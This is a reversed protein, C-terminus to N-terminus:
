GHPRRQVHQDEKRDQTEPFRAAVPAPLAPLLGEPGNGFAGDGRELVGTSTRVLDSLVLTSKADSVVADRLRAFDSKALNGGHGVTQVTQCCVGSACIQCGDCPHGACPDIFM